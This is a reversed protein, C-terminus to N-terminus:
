SGHEPSNIVTLGRSMCGLFLLSQLPRAKCVCWLSGAKEGSSPLSHQNLTELFIIGSPTTLYHPCLSFPHIPKTAAARGTTLACSNLQLKQLKIKRITTSAAFRFYNQHRADCSCGPITALSSSGSTSEPSSSGQPDKPRLWGNFRSFNSFTLESGSLWGFTPNSDTEPKPNRTEPKPNRTEPKTAQFWSESDTEPKPNRTEPKPNRRKFGVKATPRCRRSREWLLDQLSLLM